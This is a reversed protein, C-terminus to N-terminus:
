ASGAPTDAAVLAHRILIRFALILRQFFVAAVEGLEGALSLDIRDDAAVLFDPAHHLHEGAPGLVIRHEDAFRADALRRDDFSEGPADDGAVHRFREFFLRTMAISM